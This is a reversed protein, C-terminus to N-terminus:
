HSEPFSKAPKQEVTPGSAKRPKTAPKRVRPKSKAKPKPKVKAKMKERQADMSKKDYTFKQGTPVIIIASGEENGERYKILEGPDCGYLAAAVAIDKVDAM